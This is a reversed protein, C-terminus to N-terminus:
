TFPINMALMMFLRVDYGLHTNQIWNMDEGDKVRLHNLIM